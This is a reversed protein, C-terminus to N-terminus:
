SQEVRWSEVVTGWLGRVQRARVQVSVHDSVSILHAAVSLDKPSGVDVGVIELGFEFFEQGGVGNDIVLILVQVHLLIGIEILLRM